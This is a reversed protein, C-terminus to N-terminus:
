RNEGFPVVQGGGPLLLADHVNNQQAAFGLTSGMTQGAAVLGQGICTFLTNSHQKKPVEPPNTDIARKSKPTIKGHVSKRALQKRQVPTVVPAEDDSSSLESDDSTSGRHVTRPVPQKRGRAM